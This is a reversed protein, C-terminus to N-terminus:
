GGNGLKWSPPDFVPYEGYLGHEEVLAEEMQDPMSEILEYLIADEGSLPEGEYAQWHNKRVRRRVTEGM